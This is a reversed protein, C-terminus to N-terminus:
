NLEKLQIIKVKSDYGNYIKFFNKFESIKWKEPIRGLPSDIFKTKEYGPFRFNVFWEKYITQAMEELIKIRRSNNEILDDYASLISAIKQQEKLAHVFIDYNDLDNRNLTPVGTGDNFRELGFDKLFYYVYKPDNDKFDKVWLSTNHPWYKKNIFEVTGLSGSQGTVVGPPDKKYENHYGLISTSGIVPYPGDM